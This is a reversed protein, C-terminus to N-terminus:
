TRCLRKSSIPNQSSTVAKYVCVHILNITMIRFRLVTYDNLMWPLFYIYYVCSELFQVFALSSADGSVNYLRYLTISVPGFLQIALKQTNIRTFM